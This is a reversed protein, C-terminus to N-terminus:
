EKWEIEWEIEKKSNKELSLNRLYEATDKRNLFKKIKQKESM